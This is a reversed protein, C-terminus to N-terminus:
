YAETGRMQMESIRKNNADVRGVKVNRELRAVKEADAFTGRRPRM